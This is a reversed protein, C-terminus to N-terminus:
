ITKTDTSSISIIAERNALSSLLAELMATARIANNETHTSKVPAHKIQINPVIQALAGVPTFRATYTKPAILKFLTM